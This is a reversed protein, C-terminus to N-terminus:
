HLSELQSFDGDLEPHFVLETNKEAPIKKIFNEFDNEIWDYSILIDSSALGSNKFLPLNKNKFWDLISAVLCPEKELSEKGLRIYPIHYKEALVLVKKFYPTFFHIHEHSSIGDPSKGFLAIFDRIQKEWEIAAKKPAGKGLFINFFFAIVRKIIGSDIVRAEKGKQWRDIKEEILHLHIDLKIGSRLLTEVDKTKINKSMMIEVWDLKGRRILELINRDAKPSIGFDDASIILNKRNHEM